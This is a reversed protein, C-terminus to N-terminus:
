LRRALTREARNARARVEQMGLEFIRAAMKQSSCSKPTNQSESQAKQYLIEHTRRRILKVLCGALMTDDLIIANSITHRLVRGFNQALTLDFWYVADQHSRWTIEYPVFGPSDISHPSVEGPEDVPDIATFFCTQRGRKGCTGDALLGASAKSRCDLSSGVDVWRMNKWKTTCNPIM